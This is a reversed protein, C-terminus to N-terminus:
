AALVAALLRASLTALPGRPRLPPVDGRDLAAALGQEPKLHGALPLGLADAVAEASLGSPAPGRVVVALDAAVADLGAAVRVAAAAARVDAPVVVFVRRAAALVVRAADDVHRPLDAVVLDGDEAASDLAAEVARAPVSTRDSRDWTLLSVGCVSPATSRVAGPPLRGPANRLDQWRLGGAGEAGFVLDVGGGLPDLDLLTVALDRRAATLALATALTTAGAGGCGGVVAVVPARGVSRVARGIRTALWAEADPLVAVTEAGLRVADSWVGPGPDGACVLVLGAGARNALAEASRTLPWQALVLAADVPARPGDPGPRLPEAGAGRVLRVLVGAPEPENAIVVVDHAM